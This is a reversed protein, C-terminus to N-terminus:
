TKWTVGDRYKHMQSNGNTIRLAEEPQDQFITLSIVPANNITLQGDPRVAITFLLGHGTGKAGRSRGTKLLEAVFPVELLGMSALIQELGWIRVDGGGVFAARSKAEAFFKLAMALEYDKAVIEVKKLHLVTKAASLERRLRQFLEPGTNAQGLLALQIGLTAGVNALTDIPLNNLDLVLDLDRPVMAEPAMGGTGSLGNHRLNLSINLMKGDPSSVALGYDAAALTVTGMAPNHMSLGSLGARVSVGNAMTLIKELPPLGAQDEHEGSSTAYLGLDLNSFNLKLDATAIQIQSQGRSTLNLDRLSFHLPGSWQGRDEIVDAQVSIEGIRGMERNANASGDLEFVLQRLRFEFETSTGLQRDWILTALRGALTIRGSAGNRDHFRVIGPLALTIDDFRTERRRVHAVVDGLEFVDGKASQIVINPITVQIANALQVSHLIGHHLAGNKAIKGSIQALLNEVARETREVVTMQGHSKRLTAPAALQATKASTRLSRLLRQSPQYGQEASRAAWDRAKALDQKVGQGKQYMVALSYQARADGGRALDRWIDLAGNYDGLSYLRQGHLFEAAEAAQFSGLAVTTALFAARATNKM